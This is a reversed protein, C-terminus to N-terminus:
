FKKVSVSHVLLNLLLKWIRAPMWKSKKKIVLFFLENYSEVMKKSHATAFISISESVKKSM